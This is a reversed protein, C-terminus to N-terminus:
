HPKTQKYVFYFIIKDIFMIKRRGENTDTSGFAKHTFQPQAKANLKHHSLNLHEQKELNTNEGIFHQAKARM